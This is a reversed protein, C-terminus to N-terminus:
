RPQAARPFTSDLFLDVMAVPDDIRSGAVFMKLGADV